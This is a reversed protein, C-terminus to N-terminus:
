YLPSCFYRLSVHTETALRAELEVLLRSKGIGPEGTLLAVRGDGVAAQQWSRLLLELEEERGILPMIASGRLAEFRSGVGGEGLVQWAPVAAPLGKLEVTGLDPM